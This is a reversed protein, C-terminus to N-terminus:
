GGGRRRRCRRNADSVRLFVIPFSGHCVREDNGAFFTLESSDTDTLPVHAFSNDYGILQVLELGSLVKHIFEGGNSNLMEIYERGTRATVGEPYRLAWNTKTTLTGLKSTWPDRLGDDGTLRELSINNDRYQICESDATEARFPFIKCCYDLSKM